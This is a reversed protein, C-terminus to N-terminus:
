LGFEACDRLGDTNLIAVERGEVRVLGAEAMRRFARSLAEPTAGAVKALERHSMPLTAITVGEPGPRQTETNLLFDAIRQPLDKLSLSEVLEMAQKLRGSLIELINLMLTPETRAMDRFTEQSFTLVRSPELASATGPLRRGRLASCLCFPEGPGFVYLTQERGEASSKYMKVRGEAVVHFGAPEQDAGAIMEGARFRRDLARAALRDLRNEPVGEFLSLTKLLDPLDKKM